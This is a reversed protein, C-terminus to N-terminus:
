GKVSDMFPLSEQNIHMNAVSEGALLTGLLGTVSLYQGSAGVYLICFHIHKPFPFGHSSGPTQQEYLASLQWPQTFCVFVLWSSIFLSNCRTDLM